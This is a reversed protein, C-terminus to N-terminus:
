TYKMGRNRTKFRRQKKLLYVKRMHSRYAGLGLACKV